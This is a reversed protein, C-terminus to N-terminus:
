PGKWQALLKNSVIPLLVLCKNGVAFRRLRCKRDYYGKQVERTKVIEEKTVRCTERLRDSLDIVYQYTTRVEPDPVDDDWLERLLQLPGRVTRSSM